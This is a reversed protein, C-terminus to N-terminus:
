EHSRGTQGFGSLSGTEGLTEDGSRSPDGFDTEETSFDAASTRDFEGVFSNDAGSLDNGFGRDQADFDFPRMPAENVRDFDQDFQGGGFRVEGEAPYTPQPASAKIFRGLAVGALMAGAILAGSNNRGFDRFQQVVEGISKNRLAESVNEIGGAADGIYRSAASQHNGGLHDSAARLAGSFATLSDAVGRQATEAQKAAASKAQEAYEGARRMVEDKADHAAETAHLAEGKMREALNSLDASLDPKPQFTKDDNNM